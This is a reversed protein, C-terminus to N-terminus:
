SFNGGGMPMYKTKWDSWGGNKMWACLELYDVILRDNANFLGFV